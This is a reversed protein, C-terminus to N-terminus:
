QKDIDTKPHEKTKELGKDGLLKTAEPLYMTLFKQYAQDLDESILVCERIYRLHSQILEKAYEEDVMGKVAMIRRLTELPTFVYPEVYMLFTQVYLKTVKKIDKGEFGAICLSERGVSLRAVRKAEIELAESEREAEEYVKKLWKNVEIRGKIFSKLAMIALETAINVKLKFMDDEKYCVVDVGKPLDKLYNIIPEMDYFVSRYEETLIGRRIAKEMMSDYAEGERAELALDQMATPLPILLREVDLSRIMDVARLSSKRLPPKVIITLAM